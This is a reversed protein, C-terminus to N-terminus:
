NMASPANTDARPKFAEAVSSKEWESTFWQGFPSSSRRSRAEAIFASLGAKIAEDSVKKREKLSLVYGGDRSLTFSSIGGAELAFATDKLSGLDAYPPLGPVMTMSLSFAPLDIAQLKQEAAITAFTKGAAIGNTVANRFAQGASRAAELALSRRYDETVRPEISKLPPIVSPIRTRIAIIYAGDAAVLPESFPSDPTLRQLDNALDQIGELGLPREGRVFHQTMEVRMKRKAAVADLNEAKAPSIQALENYVETAVQAAQEAANGKIAEAKMRAIAAEKSLVVGQDDVFSNTKRSTYAQELRLALDPMKALEAEATALHNSGPFKIYSVVLKEQIRYNQARNTYFTGLGEPTIKVSSLFNTNIFFVASAVAEENERRYDAEAERPTVLSDPISLLGVLSSQEVQRRLIALYDDERAGMNKLREALAPYTSQGTAPDRFADRIVSALVEDDAIVGMNHLKHDIFAMQAATAERQDDTMSRPRESLKDQLLLQRYTQQIEDRTLDKGDVAGYRGQGGGLMSVLSSQSQGSWAVFSVIVAVVIIWWLAASHKRITGIM